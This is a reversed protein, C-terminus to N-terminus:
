NDKRNITTNIIEESNNGLHTKKSKILNKYILIKNM